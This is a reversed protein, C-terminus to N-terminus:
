EASLGRRLALLWDFFATVDEVGDVIYDASDLVVKPTEESRVGLGYAQCAGERRLRQAVSIADLDTTDDGLYVAGDLWYENVLTNFASGKDMPIPPRVEIVMRGEHVRLNLEQAIEAAVPHLKEFATTPSDARRYHISLTAGKDEMATGPISEIIGNLRDRAEVLTRRYLKVEPPIAAANNVWRELGHNGVYVVDDVGVREHVDTASRGSIVAVLPLHNVLEALLERARPVVAAAEPQSVIPSITGDVDTILGVRPKGLGAQLAQRATQWHQM